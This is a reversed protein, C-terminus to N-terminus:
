KQLACRKESLIQAAKDNKTKLLVDIFIDLINGRTKIKRLLDAVKEKECPLKEIEQVEDDDLIGLQYLYQLVDFLKHITKLLDVHCSKMAQIDEEPMALDKPNFFYLWSHILLM